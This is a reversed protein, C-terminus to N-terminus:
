KFIKVPNFDATTLEKCRHDKLPHWLYGQHSYQLYVPKQLQIALNSCTIKKSLKPINKQSQTKVNQKM